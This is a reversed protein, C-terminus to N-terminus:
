DTDERGKGLLEENVLYTFSYCNVFRGSKNVKRWVILLYCVKANLTDFITEVLLVDAGGDLLGRAQEAYAEVLEM